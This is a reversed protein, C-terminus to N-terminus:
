IQIRKLALIYSDCTMMCSLFNRSYFSKAKDLVFSTDMISLQKIIAKIMANSSDLIRRLRFGTFLSLSEATPNLALVAYIFNDISSNPSLVLVHECLVEHSSSDSVFCITNAKVSSSLILLLLLVIFKVSMNM